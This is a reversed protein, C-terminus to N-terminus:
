ELLIKLYGNMSKSFREKIQFIRKEIQFLRNGTLWNELKSPWRGRMKRVKDVFFDLIM